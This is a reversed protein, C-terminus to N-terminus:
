ALRGPPCLRVRGTAEGEARGHTGAAPGVVIEILVDVVGFCLGPGGIGSGVAAGPVGGWVDHGHRELAKFQGGTRVSAAVGQTSVQSCEWECGEGCWAQAANARVLVDAKHAREFVTGPLRSDESLPVLHM